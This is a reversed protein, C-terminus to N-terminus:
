AAEAVSQAAKAPRARGLPGASVVVGIRWLGLLLSVLALPRIALMTGNAGLGFAAIGLIAALCAHQGLNLAVSKALLVPNRFAAVFGGFATKIHFSRAGHLVVHVRAIDLACTSIMAFLAILPVAVLRPAAYTVGVVVGVLVARLLLHWLSTVIMAPLWRVSAAATAQWSTATALRTIIGGSLTTWLVVGVVATGMSSTVLQRGITPHDGLLDILNFLLRGDALVAFGGLAAGVSQRLEFGVAAAVALQILWLAVLLGPARTVRRLASM